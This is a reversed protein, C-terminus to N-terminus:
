EKVEYFDKIQQLYGTRSAVSFGSPHYKRFEAVSNYKPLLEMYRESTWPLRRNTMHSTVDDLIGRKKAPQYAKSNNRFEQFNHFKLAENKIKEYDWTQQLIPMHQTVEDFIGLKRAMECASHAKRCFETRNTFQLAIEKIRDKSWDREFSGGLAGGKVKNLINWGNKKYYEIFEQEAFRAEDSDIFEPTLIKFQPELKTKQIHQFVSSGLDEKHRYVRRKEDYTLGVYVSKDSFEFAYIKRKYRSGSPKLHQTVDKLWGNRHAASYAAPENQSFDKYNEYKLAIQWVKEKPWENRLNKMHETAEDYWGFYRAIHVLKPENDAFDKKSEYKSAAQLIDEKKYKRSGRHGKFVDLMDKTLEPLLGRDGAVKYANPAQSYFEKKTKYKSAVSRLMDDTWKIRQEQIYDKIISKILDKM